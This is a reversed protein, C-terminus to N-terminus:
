PRRTKVPKKLGASLPFKATENWVKKYKHNLKYNPKDGLLVLVSSLREDGISRTHTLEDQSSDYNATKM